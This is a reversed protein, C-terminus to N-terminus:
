FKATTGNGEVVAKTPDAEPPSGANPDGEEEEEDPDETKSESEEGALRVEDECVILSPLELLPRPPRSVFSNCFTSIGECQEPANSVVFTCTQIVDHLTNDVYHFVLHREVKLGHTVVKGHLGAPKGAIKIDVEEYKSVVYNFRDQADIDDMQPI